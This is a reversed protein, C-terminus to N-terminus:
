ETMALSHALLFSLCALYWRSWSKRKASKAGRAALKGTPAATRGVGIWGTVPLLMCNKLLKPAKDLAIGGARSLISAPPRSGSLATGTLARAGGM